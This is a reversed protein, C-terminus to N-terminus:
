CRNEALSPEPVARGADAGVRVTPRHRRCEHYVAWRTAATRQTRHRSRRLWDMQSWGVVLAQPKSGLSRGEVNFQCASRSSMSCINHVQAASITRSSIRSAPQTTSHGDGCPGRPALRGRCQVSRRLGPPPRALHAKGPLAHDRAREITIAIIAANIM